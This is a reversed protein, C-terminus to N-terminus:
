REGGNEEILLDSFRDSFISFAAGLLFGIWRQRPGALAVSGILILIGVILFLASLSEVEEPRRLKM